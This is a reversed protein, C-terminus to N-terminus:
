CETLIWTWLMTVTLSVKRRAILKQLTEVNEKLDELEDKNILSSSLHLLCLLTLIMVLGKTTTVGSMTLQAAGMLTEAPSLLVSSHQCSPSVCVFECM